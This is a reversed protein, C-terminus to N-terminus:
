IPSFTAAYTAVSTGAASGGTIVTTPSAAAVGSAVNAGLLWKVHGDVFMYNSGSLHRGEEADFCGDGLASNEGALRGTAYRLKQGAAGSYFGAINAGGSTASGGCRGNAGPSVSASANDDDSGSYYGANMVECLLVTKTTATFGALHPVGTWGAVGGYPIAGNYAYSVQLRTGIAAPKSESPCVYVQDSKIYPYVVSAWGRGKYPSGATTQTVGRPLQEDYDQAYQTMGLGLQKLNSQCSTRRANERVRGFAPFM